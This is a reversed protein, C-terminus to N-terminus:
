SVLILSDEKKCSSYTLSDALLQSAYECQQQIQKPSTRFSMTLYSRRAMYAALVAKPLPDNLSTLAEPVNELKNYLKEANGEEQLLWYCAISIFTAWWEAVHDKYALSCPNKLGPFSHFVSLMCTSSKQFVTAAEVISNDNLLELYTLADNLDTKKDQSLESKQGPSVLISLAKVLLHEHYIQPFNSM